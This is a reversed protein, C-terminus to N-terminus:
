QEHTNEKELHRIEGTIRHKVIIHTDQDDIVAWCAPKLGNCKILDAYVNHAM